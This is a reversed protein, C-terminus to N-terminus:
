WPDWFFYIVIIILQPLLSFSWRSDSVVAWTKPHLSLKFKFFKWLSIGWCDLLQPTYIIKYGVFYINRIISYHIPPQNPPLSNNLSFDTMGTIDPNQPNHFDVRDPSYSLFHLTVPWTSYLNPALWWASTGRAHTLAGALHFLIYISGILLLGRKSTVKARLCTPMDAYRQNVNQPCYFAICVFDGKGVM